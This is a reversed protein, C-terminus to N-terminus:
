SHETARRVLRGALIALPVPALSVLLMVGGVTPLDTGLVDRALRVYDNQLGFSGNNRYAERAAASTALGFCLGVNSGVLMWGIATYAGREAAGYRFTRGAHARLLAWTAFALEALHGATLFLCEKAPTFAILPYITALVLAGLLAPRHDRVRWALLGLGAWIAFVMWTVPEGHVTAAHGRLSIAPFSPLGFALGAATHGAEHFLAAFFWAYSRMFPGSAFVLALPAGVLLWFWGAPLGLIRPEPEPARTERYPTELPRTTQAATPGAMPGATPVQRPEADARRLVEGCMGCSVDRVDNSYGCAPCATAPPPMTRM